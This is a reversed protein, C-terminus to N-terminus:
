CAVEVEMKRCCNGIVFSFKIVCSIDATSIVILVHVKYYEYNYKFHCEHKFFGGFTNDLWFITNLKFRGFVWNEPNLSKGRTNSRLGERVEM